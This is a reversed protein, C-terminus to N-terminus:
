AYDEGKPQTPDAELKRGVGVSPDAPIDVLSIEMATWSTVRYLDPSEKNEEQLKRENIRYAM